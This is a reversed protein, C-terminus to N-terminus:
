NTQNGIDFTVQNMFATALLFVVKGDMFGNEKAGLLVLEQKIIAFPKFRDVKIKSNNCSFELWPM